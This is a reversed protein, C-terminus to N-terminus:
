RATRSNLLMVGMEEVENCLDISLQKVEEESEVNDHWLHAHWDETWNMNRVGTPEM